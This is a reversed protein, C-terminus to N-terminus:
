IRGWAVFASGCAVPQACGALLQAALRAPLFLSTIDHRAACCLVMGKMICHMTLGRHVASHVPVCLGAPWGALQGM